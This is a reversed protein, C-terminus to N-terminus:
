PLRRTPKIDGWMWTTKNSHPGTGGTMAHDRHNAAHRLHAEALGPQGSLRADRARSLRDRALMKQGAVGQASLRFFQPGLSDSAAM